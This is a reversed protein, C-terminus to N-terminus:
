AAPAEPRYTEGTTLLVWAIRARKNALAVSVRRFPMAALLTRVRDALRTTKDNAHRM